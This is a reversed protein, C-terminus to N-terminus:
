TLRWIFARGWDLCEPWNPSCAGKHRESGEAAAKMRHLNLSPPKTYRPERKNGSSIYPLKSELTERMAGSEPFIANVWEVIQM